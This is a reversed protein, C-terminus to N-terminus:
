GLTTKLRRFFNMPNKMVTLDFGPKTIDTGHTVEGSLTLEGYVCVLNVVEDLANYQQFQFWGEIGAIPGALPTGEVFDGVDTIGSGTLPGTMYALETYLLTADEQTWSIKLSSPGPQFRRSLVKQGAVVENADIRTGWEPAEKFETISKSIKTWNSLPSYDPKVTKSITQSDIVTGSRALYCHTQITSQLLLIDAM